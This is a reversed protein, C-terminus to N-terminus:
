KTEAISPRARLDRSPGRSSRAEHLTSSSRRKVNQVYRSAVADLPAITVCGYRRRAATRRTSVPLLGGSRNSAIRQQRAAHRRAALEDPIHDGRGFDIEDPTQGRRGLGHHCGRGAPKTVLGAAWVLVAHTILPDLHRAVSAVVKESVSPTVLRTTAGYRVAAAGRGHGLARESEAANRIPAAEGRCSDTRVNGVGSTM